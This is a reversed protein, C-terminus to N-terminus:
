SCVQYLSSRIGKYYLEAAKFSLAHLEIVPRSGLYSFSRLMTQFCPFENFLPVIMESKVAKSPGVLFLVPMARTLGHEVLRWNWKGENNYDAYILLDQLHGRRELDSQNRIHAIRAGEVRCFRAATKAFKCRGMIGIRTDRISYGHQNLLKVTMSGVYHFIPLLHHEENTGLLHIGHRLCEKISIEGNRLEWAEYMLLLIADTRMQRIKDRTFPRMPYSNTVINASELGKSLTQTFSIHKQCCLKESLDLVDQRAKARSAYSTTTNFSIVKAGAAAAICPTVSFPYNAAETFVTYSDLCLNLKEVTERIIEAPNESTMAHIGAAVMRILSPVM